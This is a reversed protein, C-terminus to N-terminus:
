WGLKFSSEFRYSCSWSFGLYSYGSVEWGKFRVNINFIKSKNDSEDIKKNMDKQIEKAKEAVPKFLQSLFTGAVTVTQSATQKAVEYKVKTEM